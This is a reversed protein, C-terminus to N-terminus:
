RLTPMNWDTVRYWPPIFSPLVRAETSYPASRPSEGSFDLVFSLFFIRKKSVWSGSLARPCRRDM